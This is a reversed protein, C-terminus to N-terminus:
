AAQPEDESVMKLAEEKSLGRAVLQGGETFVNHTRSSPDYKRILKRGTSGGVTRPETLMEVVIDTTTKKVVELRFKTWTGDDHLLVVDIEDGAELYNNMSNKFYNEAMIDDVSHDCMYRLSSAFKLRAIYEFNAVISKPGATKTNM